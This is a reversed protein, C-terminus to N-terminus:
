PERLRSSVKEQLAQEIEKLDMVDRVPKSYLVTDDQYNYVSVITLSLDHHTCDNISDFLERGWLVAKNKQAQLDPYSMREQLSRREVARDVAIVYLSGGSSGSLRDDFLKFTNLCGICDNPNITFILTNGSRNLTLTDMVRHLYSSKEGEPSRTCGYFFLIALLYVSSNRM